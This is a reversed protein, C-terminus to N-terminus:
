ARAIMALFLGTGLAYVLHHYYIAVNAGADIGSRPWHAIAAAMADLDLLDAAAAVGRVQELLEEAVRADIRTAWDSSQVGRQRAALVEPGLRDGLARKALPRLEGGGVLQGVPLRLSWEILARDATADREDIGADALAGRRWVGPDSLGILRLREAGPSLHEREANGEAAIRARWHPAVFSGEALPPNGLAHREVGANVWAPLWPAVSHWAIGRGSAAGARRLARAENAWALWRGRQLHERLPALGGANLTLNGMEGTLLVRAGADAAAHRSASWWGLNFPDRIAHQHIPTLRAWVADIPDVARLIRHAIGLRAATRAAVESEDGFRGKAVAGVRDLVPAATIATLGGGGPSLRAAAATVASSDFGSSLQAAIAGPADAIRRAVSRDLLGRYQEVFEDEGVGEIPDTRPTWYRREIPERGPSWHVIHGPLVRRVGRWGSSQAAPEGPGIRHLLDRALREKDAEIQGLLPSLGLPMAAVALGGDHEAYFLSRQGVPDRVLWVEGSRTDSIAFAFDGGLSGLLREPGARWTLLVEEAVSRRAEGAVDRLAERDDIRGDFLLVFHGGDVPPPAQGSFNPHGSIAVWAAGRAATQLPLGGYASQAAVLELGIRQRFAADSISFLGAFASM